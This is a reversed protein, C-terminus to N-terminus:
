KYLYSCAFVCYNYDNDNQSLCNTMCDRNDRGNFEPTLDRCCCDM